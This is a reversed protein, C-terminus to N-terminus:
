FNIKKKIDKMIIDPAIKIGYKFLWKHIYKTLEYILNKKTKIWFFVKNSSFNFQIKNKWDILIRDYFIIM